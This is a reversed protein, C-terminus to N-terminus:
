CVMDSLEKTIIKLIQPSPTYIKDTLINSTNPLKRYVNTINHKICNDCNVVSMTRMNTYDNTIQRLTFDNICHMLGNNYCLLSAPPLQFHLEHCALLQVVYLELVNCVILNSMCCIITNGVSAIQCCHTLSTTYHLSNEPLVLKCIQLHM